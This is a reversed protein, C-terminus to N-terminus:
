DEFNGSIAPFRGGELSAGQEKGGCGVAILLPAVAMSNAFIDGAADRRGAITVDRM